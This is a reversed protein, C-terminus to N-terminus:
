KQKSLSDSYNTLNIAYKTILDDASLGGMSIPLLDQKKEEIKAFKSILEFMAADMTEIYSADLNEDPNKLVYAQHKLAAGLDNNLKAISQGILDVTTKQNTDFKNLKLTQLTNM